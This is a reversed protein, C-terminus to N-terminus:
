ASRDPHASVGTKVSTSAFYKAKRASTRNHAKDELTQEDNTM